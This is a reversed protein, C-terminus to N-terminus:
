RREALSKLLPMLDGFSITRQSSVFLDSTGDTDKSLGELLHCLEILGFNEPVLSELEGAYDKIAKSAVLTTFTKYFLRTHLESNDAHKKLLGLAEKYLGNELYIDCSELEKESRDTLLILDVYIKIDNNRTNGRRHLKTSLVQLAREAIEAQPHSCFNLEVQFIPSKACLM